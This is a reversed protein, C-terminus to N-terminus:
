GIEPPPVIVPYAPYLIEADTNISRYQPIVMAAIEFETISTPQFDKFIKSLFNLGQHSQTPIDNAAKSYDALLSDIKTGDINKVCVLYLVGDKLKQKILKYHEGQYEFEGNMRSLGNDSVPYPLALPIELTIEQQSHTDNEIRALLDKESQQRILWFLGYYGGANFLFLLLFFITTLRKVPSV